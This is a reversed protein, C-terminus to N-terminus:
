EECFMWEDFGNRLRKDEPPFEMYNNYWQKLLTDYGVPAKFKRGEYDVLVTEEFLTKAYLSDEEDSLVDSLYNSQQTKDVCLNYIIHEIHKEGILLRLFHLIYVSWILPYKKIGKKKKTVKIILKKEDWNLSAIKLLKKIKRKKKGIQKAYDLLFIDLQVQNMINFEEAGPMCYVTGKKGIKIESVAADPGSGMIKLNFRSDLEKEAVRIFNNYDERKMAIDIDDDWPIPGQHRVAGLLTGYFLYYQINHKDCIDVVTNLIESDIEQVRKLDELTM